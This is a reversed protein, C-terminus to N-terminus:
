YSVIQEFDGMNPHNFLAKPISVFNFIINWIEILPFPTGSGFFNGMNNHGFTVIFPSYLALIPCHGEGMDRGM